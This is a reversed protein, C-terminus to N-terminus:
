KNKFIEYLESTTKLAKKNCEFDLDDFAWEKGGYFVNTGVWEAFETVDKRLQENEARLQEAILQTAQTQLMFGYSALAGAIEKEEELEKVRQQLTDRERCVDLVDLRDREADLWCEKIKDVEEKGKEYGESYGKIFTEQQIEKMQLVTLEAFVMKSVPRDPELPYLEAARDEIQQKTM